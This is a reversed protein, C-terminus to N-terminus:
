THVIRVAFRVSTTVNGVDFLKACYTGAAMPATLQSVLGPVATVSRTVDCDAGNPIGIGLGMPVSITSLPAGSALSVLTLQVAGAEVVTFSYFSSGKASLAGEFVQQTTSPTSPSTPSETNAGCGAGGTTLAGLAFAFLFTRASAASM